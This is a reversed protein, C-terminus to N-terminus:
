HFYKHLGEQCYRDTFVEPGAMPSTRPCYESLKNNVAIIKMHLEAMLDERTYDKNMEVVKLLDELAVKEAKLGAKIMYERVPANSPIRTPVYKYREEGVLEAFCSEAIRTTKNTEPTITKFM